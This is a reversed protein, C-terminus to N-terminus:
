IYCWLDLPDVLETESKRFKPLEVLHISLHDAFTLEPHRDSRLEFNMHFDPVLPFVITNLFCITITKRLLSYDDSTGLQDAHVRALYYVLRPLLTRMQMEINYQRGHEDRALIDLISLKDDLSEKDNFPNLITLSIIQQGPPPQLVANVLSLLLTTHTEKGFMWKFVYDIKPDIDPVM